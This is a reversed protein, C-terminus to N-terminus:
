LGTNVSILKILESSSKEENIIEFKMLYVGKPFDLSYPKLQYSGKIYDTEDAPGMPRGALDYFSIRVKSDNELSFYIGTYDKFPNPYVKVHNGPITDITDPALYQIEPIELEVGEIINASKDAFESLEYIGLKITGELGAMDMTKMRLTLITGEDLITIPNIDSWAIIVLGNTDSYNFGQVSDALILDTIELYEQPYYFGLSIASIEYGTKMKVQLDFETLSPLSLTDKFLLSVTPGDKESGNLYLDKNTQHINEQAKIAHFNSLIILGFGIRVCVALLKIKM